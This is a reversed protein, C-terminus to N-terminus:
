KKAPTKAIATVKQHVGKADDWCTLTLKDGAKVEKLSAIAKEDVPVTTNEKEGKITLTKKDVDVSVAEAAVEHTKGAPQLAAKEAPKSAIAATAPKAADQASAFSAVSVFSLLLALKKM